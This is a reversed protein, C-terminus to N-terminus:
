ESELDRRQGDPRHAPEMFKAEGLAKVAGAQEIEAEVVHLPRQSRSVRARVVLRDGITVPRRFRVTMEGTVAVVGRAFLCHTMASDLLASIVGGHLMGDYGQCAEPPDFSAEVRGGDDPVFRLGLGDRGCMICHPHAADRTRKLLSEARDTTASM